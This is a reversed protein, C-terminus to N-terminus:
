VIPPRLHSVCFAAGADMRSEGRNGEERASPMMIGECGGTRMLSVRACVKGNRASSDWNRASDQNARM